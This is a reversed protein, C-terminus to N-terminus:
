SPIKIEDPSKILFIINVGWVIVVLRDGRCGDGFISIHLMM